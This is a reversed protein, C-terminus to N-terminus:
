LTTPRLVREMAQFYDRQVKMNSVKCYRQTSRITTHGLLDHVTTLRAGSNLLQTAMTHRFQHCSVKLGTKRAYYELRKQIGRVSLPKARCPLKQALFVWKAKSIPRIKLYNVLARELTNRVGTSHYFIWFSFNCSTPLSYSIIVELYSM